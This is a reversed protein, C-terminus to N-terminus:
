LLSLLLCLVSCLEQIAIDMFRLRFIYSTVTNTLVNGYISALSMKFAIVNLFPLFTVKSVTM